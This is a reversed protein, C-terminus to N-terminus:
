FIVINGKKPAVPPTTETELTEPTLAKIVCELQDFRLGEGVHAEFEITNLMGLYELFGYIGGIFAFLLGTLHTMERLILLCSTRLIEYKLQRLDMESQIKMTSHRWGGSM